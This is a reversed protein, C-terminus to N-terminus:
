RGAHGRGRSGAGLLQPEFLPELSVDVAAGGASRPTSRTPARRGRPRLLAGKLISVDSRWAARRDAGSCSTMHVPQDPVPRVRSPRRTGRAARRASRSSRPQPRRRECRVGDAGCIRAFATVEAFILFRLTVPALIALFATVSGSTRFPESVRASKAALESGAPGAPGPPGTRGAGGARDTRDGHALGADGHGPASRM